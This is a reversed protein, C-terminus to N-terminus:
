LDDKEWCSLWLSSPDSLILKYSIIRFIYRSTEENLLLDYYDKEKQREIQRDMGRRGANYSAAAMTWSGYKKYSEIIYKCATETSKELSYREDMESNIELGYEKGTGELLQWFGVANAPSVINTLGSEAVPLYKFDDPVNYKKLIEEIIPFYRNARKIFLLTQSQWYTNVLVERDLNELVDLQSIPVPEGAFDVKEPLKVAFIAYNKQPGDEPEPLNESGNGIKSIAMFSIGSIFILSAISWANKIKFINM